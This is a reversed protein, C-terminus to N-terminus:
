CGTAWWRPCCGAARCGLHPATLAQGCLLTRCGAAAVPMWCTAPESSGSVQVGQTVLLSGFELLQFLGSVLLASNLIRPVEQWVRGAIAREQQTHAAAM